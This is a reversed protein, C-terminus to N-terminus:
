PTEGEPPVDPLLPEAPPANVIQEALSLGCIQCKSM